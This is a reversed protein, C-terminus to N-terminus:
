RQSMSGCLALFTISSKVVYRLFLKLEITLRPIIGKSSSSSCVFAKRILAEIDKVPVTSLQAEKDRMTPGQYQTLLWKWDAASIKLSGSDNAFSVTGNNDYSFGYSTKGAGGSVGNVDDDNLM